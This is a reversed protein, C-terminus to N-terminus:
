KSIRSVFFERLNRVVAGFSECHRVQDGIWKPLQSQVRPKTRWRQDVLLISSYDNVHRISRGISQNVARMCLNEYYDNGANSGNPTAPKSSSLLSSSPAAGLFSSGNSIAEQKHKMEVETQQRKNLYDIKQILEPDSRDPYPLGVMVVCRALDDSFNIGESMKAGVVCFLIAGTTTKPTEM